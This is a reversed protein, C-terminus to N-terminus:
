RDPRHSHDIANSVDRLVAAGETLSFHPGLEVDIRREPEEFTVEAAIRDHRTAQPEVRHPLEDAEIEGPLSMAAETAREAHVLHAEEPLDLRM